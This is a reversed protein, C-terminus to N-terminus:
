PTFRSSDFRQGPWAEVELYATQGLELLPLEREAVQIPCLLPDFDSIRFLPTNAAVQQAFDVYRSVILGDFPAEIVTYALQIQDGDLQGKATELIWEGGQSRGIAEVPNFRQIEAGLDRSGKALAQTTQSPDIDGEYPDLIGGLLDHGEMFPHLALMEDVSILRLDFGLGKSIGVLHAFYELREKTQAPWFAGTVNYNIPYDVEDALNSYLRYAYNQARM